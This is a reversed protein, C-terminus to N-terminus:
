SKAAGGPLCASQRVALMPLLEQVFVDADAVVNDGSGVPGGDIALSHRTLPYKIPITANGLIKDILAIGGRGACVPGRPV